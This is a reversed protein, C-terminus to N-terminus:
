QRTDKPAVGHPLCKATVGERNKLTYVAEQCEQLNTTTGLVMWEGRPLLIWLIFVIEQM